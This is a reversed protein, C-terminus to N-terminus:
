SVYECLESVCVFVRTHTYNKELFHQEFVCVCVYVCVCLGGGCIEVEFMGQASRTGTRKQGKEM